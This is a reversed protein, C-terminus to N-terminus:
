WDPTTGTVTYYLIGGVFYVVPLLFIMELM